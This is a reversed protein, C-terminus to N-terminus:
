SLLYLTDIATDYAQLDSTSSLCGPYVKLTLEEWEFVGQM